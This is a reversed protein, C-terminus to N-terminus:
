AQKEKHCAEHDRRFVDEEDRLFDSSLYGEIDHPRNCGRCRLKCVVYGDECRILLRLFRERKESM